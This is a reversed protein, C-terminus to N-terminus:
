RARRMRYAWRAYDLIARLRERRPPRAAPDAGFATETRWRWYGSRLRFGSRAALMLLLGLGGLTDLLRRM